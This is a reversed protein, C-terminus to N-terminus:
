LITFLESGTLGLHSFMQNRAWKWTKLMWTFNGKIMLWVLSDFWFAYEVKLTQFNSAFTAELGRGILLKYLM